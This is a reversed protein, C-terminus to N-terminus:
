QAASKSAVPAKSRERHRQGNPLRFTIDVEWGPRKGKRYPRVKVSMAVGEAIAGVKPQSITDSRRRPDPRAPRYAGCRPAARARDDRLDSQHQDSPDGRGRHM